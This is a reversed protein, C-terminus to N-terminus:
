IAGHQSHTYLHIHIKHWVITYPEIENESFSIVQIKCSDKTGDIVFSMNFRTQVEGLLVRKFTDKTYYYILDQM